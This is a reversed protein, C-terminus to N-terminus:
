RKESPLIYLVDHMNCVFVHDNKGDKKNFLVLRSVGSSDNESIFYGEAAIKVVRNKFFWRAQKFIIRFKNM